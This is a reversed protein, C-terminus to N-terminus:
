LKLLWALQVASGFFGEIGHLGSSLIVAHRCRPPGITAVDIALPEGQPGRAAIVHSDVTIGFGHVSERFRERATRYDPSFYAVGNM